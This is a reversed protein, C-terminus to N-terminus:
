ADNEPDDDEDEEDEDGETWESVMWASAAVVLDTKEDKGFALALGGEEDASDFDILELHEDALRSIVKSIADMGAIPDGDPDPYVAAAYLELAAGDALLLDCDFFVRDEPKVPEEEDDGLSDEWVDLGVVERGVLTDMEERGADDLETYLDDEAMTDDDDINQADEIDKLEEDKGNANM